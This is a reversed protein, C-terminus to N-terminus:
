AISQDPETVTFVTIHSYRAVSVRQSRYPVNPKASAMVLYTSQFALQEPAIAKSAAFM